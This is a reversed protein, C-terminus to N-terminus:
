NGLGNKDIVMVKGDEIAEGEHLYKLSM